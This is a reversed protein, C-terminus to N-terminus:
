KIPLLCSLYDNLSNLDLKSKGSTPIISISYILIYKDLEKGLFEKTWQGDPEKFM